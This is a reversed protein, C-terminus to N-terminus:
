APQEDGYRWAVNNLLLLGYKNKHASPYARGVLCMCHTQSIPKEVVHYGGAVHELHPGINRIPIKPCAQWFVKACLKVLKKFDYDGYVAFIM